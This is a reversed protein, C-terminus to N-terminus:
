LKLVHMTLTPFDDTPCTSLFTLFNNIVQDDFAFINFIFNFVLTNANFPTIKQCFIQFNIKNLRSSAKIHKAVSPITFLKLHGPNM